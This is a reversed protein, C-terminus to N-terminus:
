NQLGNWVEEHSIYDADPTDRAAIIRGWVDDEDIELAVEILQLAKTAVPVCDRKALLALVEETENPVSINIRKKSTPM